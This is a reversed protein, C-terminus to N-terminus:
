SGSCSARHISGRQSVSIRPNRISGKPSIAARCGPHAMAHPAIHRLHETGGVIRADNMLDLPPTIGAARAKISQVRAKDMTWYTLPWHPQIASVDYVGAYIFTFGGAVALIVVALLTLIVTRM